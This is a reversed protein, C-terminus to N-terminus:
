HTPLSYNRKRLFFIAFDFYIANWYFQCHKRIFFRNIKVHKRTRLVWRINTTQNIIHIGDSHQLWLHGFVHPTGSYIRHIYVDVKVRNCEGSRYDTRETERELLCFYKVRKQERHEVCARMPPAFVFSVSTNSTKNRKEKWKVNDRTRTAEFPQTHLGFLLHLRRNFSQVCWCCM